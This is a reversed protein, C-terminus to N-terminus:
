GVAANCFSWAPATQNLLSFSRFSVFCVGGSSVPVLSNLLQWPLLPHTASFNLEISSAQELGVPPKSAGKLEKLVSTSLFTVCVFFCHFFTEVPRLSFVEYAYHRSYKVLKICGPSIQRWLDGVTTGLLSLLVLQYGLFAPLTSIAGSEENKNRKILM